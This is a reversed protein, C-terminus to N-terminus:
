KSNEKQCNPCFHTGRGGVKIKKIITGCRFCKEGDRQYAKKVNGFKGKNGSPDRYDDISTGKLKIAEKLIKKIANFLNKLESDKLKEAKTKPHICSAWLVEDAYINGIGVIFKQDLLVQKIRGTKRKGKEPIFLKKFKEFTFDKETPDPGLKSLDDLSFIEKKSGFLVKAFRRMDSLAIMEGNDLFLILRIFRNKPDWLLKNDNKPIWPEDKWKEKIDNKNKFVERKEWEGVLLHGTMKQHILVVGDGSLYILINKGLRSVKEIKKEKVFKNFDSITKGPKHRSFYKPWDTWADKIKRGVVLKNLGEATTQVEPLEPM